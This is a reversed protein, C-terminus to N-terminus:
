LPSSIMKKGLVWIDGILIESSKLFRDNQSGGTIVVFKGQSAEDTVIGAAHSDRKQIM